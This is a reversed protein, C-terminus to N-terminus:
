PYITAVLFCVWFYKNNKAVIYLVCVLIGEIHYLDGVGNASFCGWVQIKGGGHKFTPKIYEKKYAQGKPRRVRVRGHYSLTFPSEDCWLVRKWDDVTWDKYQNCWQLRKAVNADSIFPKKRAIYSDLDVEKLRRDVTDHSVHIDHDIAINKAIDVATLFPDQKSVRVIINDQRKTTKRKNGSGVCRKVDGTEKYVDIIGRITSRPINLTEEIKRQSKGDEWYAIVKARQINTPKKYKRPRGVCNNQNRKRTVKKPM